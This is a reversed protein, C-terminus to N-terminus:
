FLNEQNIYHSAFTTYHRIQNFLILSITQNYFTHVYQTHTYQKIYKFIDFYITIYKFPRLTFMLSKESQKNKANYQQVKINCFLCLIILQM